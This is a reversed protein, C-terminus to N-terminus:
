TTSCAPGCPPSRPRSSQRFDYTPGGAGQIASILRSFTLAADVVADNAAGNDDQIEEVAVVDPARLNDVILGALDDFKAQPDSPDLNEVNFTAASLQDAAPAATVERALGGSLTGPSSTVGLKYNGFSYDMVGVAAGPLHDGVDVSPTPAIVDDLFVREPNFDGPRVVVGGRGTRVSANAGDDGVVPVEGFNNRPGVAVANNLEVRMGELSEYFDIGDGAPDFAGGTEVDGSADDEIVEGPPVRGGTGVVTAAPPANGSSVVSISSGTLETTTLNDADGGPRFESVRGSVQVLDGVAVAPASSTFVFLGESTAQQADPSPDQFWFGGGTRATVVGRVGAVTQGSRPSLHSAGQIDHIPTADVVSVTLTCTASQPAPDDNHAAVAVSYTGNPTSADVTVSATATEGPAAAPVLNGLVISGPAPSPTVSTIAISTVTGDADTASVQTTAAM